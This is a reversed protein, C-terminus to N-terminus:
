ARGRQEELPQVRRQRRRLARGATPRHGPVPRAPPLDPERPEAPRASSGPAAPRREPRPSTGPPLGGSGRM